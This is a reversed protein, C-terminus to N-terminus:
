DRLMKEQRLRTLLLRNFKEVGLRNLHDRDQFEIATDLSMLENFDWYKLGFKNAIHTFNASVEQYNQVNALLEKTVPQVVLVIACNNLQSFRIIESLYELQKDALRVHRPNGFDAQKINITKDSSVYGGQIYKQHSFEMQKATQLPASLRQLYVGALFNLARPNRTAISMEFLETSAPLNTALDYFSELGDKSEFVEWYVEMVILKPKLQPYYKKLLFYSNIPTQSTSGMNFSSIGQMSFYETDFSRYTHSSGLFLIDVNKFNNIDRFRTLTHGADGVRVKADLLNQLASYNGSM